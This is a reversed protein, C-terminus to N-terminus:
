YRCAVYRRTCASNARCLGTPAPRTSTGAHFDAPTIYVLSVLQRDAPQGRERRGSDYRVPHRFARHIELGTYACRMRELLVDRVPCPIQQRELHLHPLDPNQGSIRASSWGLRMSGSRQRGSIM